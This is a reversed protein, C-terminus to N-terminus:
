QTMWEGVDIVPVMKRQPGLAEKKVLVGTGLWTRIITKLRKKNSGLDLDLEKAITAGVWNAAQDSFRLNQGKIANQCRLTDKPTIDSFADPWQWNQCVGVSDGNALTFPTIRRWERAGEPALNAKDRDISFYSSHDDPLGADERMKPSMKNLVRASRAAALLATAGRGSESTVEQGYAKRTHHVLEIACNCRDALAVWEKAVQDIAGNDNENVQHSSVFPDIIMVDIERRMIEEALEEIVPQIIQVQNSITIATCLPRERGTDYFLRDKIEAFAVDHAQMAAIIRRQMEVREDELNYVWVKLKSPVTDGLLDRGSAMAVAEAVGLTSKGVGGPAVTVSIQKRILNRGYLFERCPITAPDRWKFPTAIITGQCQKPKASPQVVNGQIEAAVAELGAAQHADNWDHGVQSPVTWPLGTAEAADIGAKDNDAAVVFEADHYKEQLAAAVIPLNKASGCFVAPRGTAETASAATAWGECLYTVGEVDGGLVAHAGKTNMGKTFKKNSNPWISQEGAHQGDAHQMPVSITKGDVRAGHLQVGKMEHYLQGPLEHRFTKDNLVTPRPPAAELNPLEPYVGDDRMIQALDKFECGQNCNLLLNGNKEGIYFRNVGGCRPCPGSFHKSGDKKLDYKTAIKFSYGQWPVDQKLIKKNM